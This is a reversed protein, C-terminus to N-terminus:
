KKIIVDQKSKKICANDRIAYCEVYHKGMYLTSEPYNKTQNDSIEGRPELSSNDNKVKWKYLSASTDNKLIKFEIKRGTEVSGQNDNLWYSRFGPKPVVWGDINFKYGDELLTQIGFDFLYREEKCARQYFDAKLLDNVSLTSNFNELSILLHDRAQIIREMQTTTLTSLYDDIFKSCDARDRIQPNSIIQPIDCFFKFVVDFMELIPNQQYIATVAQEVHFSKLGFDEYKETYNRKWRKIFKITKRFNSNQNNLDAALKIYGRPDSKIWWELENRKRKTFEDYRLRRKHQGLNVIEPVYYIDEGFENKSGSIFAPVIDVSFTEENNELFLVTISHSQVSIETRYQTPNKFSSDIDNKLKNLILQPNINSPNFQGAIYLIDLDHL